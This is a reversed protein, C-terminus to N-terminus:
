LMPAVSNQVDRQFTPELGDGAGVVVRQPFRQAVMNGSQGDSQRHQHSRNIEKLGHGGSKNRALVAVVDHADAHRALINGVFRHGLPLFGDGVDNLRIRIDQTNESERQLAIDSVHKRQHLRMFLTGQGHIFGDLLKPGSHCLHGPHHSKQLIRRRDGDIPLERRADILHGHLAHIELVDVFPCRLQRVLNTGQRTEDVHVAIQQDRTRLDRDVDIAIPREREADCGILNM